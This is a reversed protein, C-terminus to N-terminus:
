SENRSTRQYIERGNWYFNINEVPTKGESDHHRGKPDLTNKIYLQGSLVNAQMEHRLWHRWSMSSIYLSLHVTYSAKRGTGLGKIRPVLRSTGFTMRWIITRLQNRTNNRLMNDEWKTAASKALLVTKTDANQEQGKIM